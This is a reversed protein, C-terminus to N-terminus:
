PGCAYPFYYYIVLKHSDNSEEEPEELGVSFAIHQVTTVKCFLNVNKFNLEKQLRSIGLLWQIKKWQYPFWSFPNSAWRIM